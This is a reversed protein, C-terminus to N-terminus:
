DLAEVSSGRTHWVAACVTETLGACGTGGVYLLSVMVELSLVLLLTLTSTCFM